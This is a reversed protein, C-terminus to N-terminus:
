EKIFLLTEEYQAANLLWGRWDPSKRQQFSVIVYCIDYWSAECIDTQSPRAAGVPHSHVIALIELNRDEADIMIKIQESPNMRYVFPSHAENEVPHFEVVCGGKGVLFGCGEEPLVSSLYDNVDEIILQPIELHNKMM